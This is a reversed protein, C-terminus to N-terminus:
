DEYKYYNVTGLQLDKSVTLRGKEDYDASFLLQVNENQVREISILKNKYNYTYYDKINPSEKIILNNNKDYQYKCFTKSCDSDTIEIYILNDNKDYQYKNTIIFPDKSTFYKSVEKVLHNENYYMKYEGYDYKEYIRHYQNDYHCESVLQHDKNYVKEIIKGNEEHSILLNNDTIKTYNKDSDGRYIYKENPYDKSNNTISILRGLNDYEFVSINQYTGDSTESDTINYGDLEETNFTESENSVSICYIPKNDKNYGTYSKYWTEKNDLFNSWESEYIVNDFKDYKYKKHVFSEDVYITKHDIVRGKEDYKFLEEYNNVGKSNYEIHYSPKDNKICEEVNEAAKNM